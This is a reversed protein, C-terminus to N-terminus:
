TNNKFMLNVYYNAQAGKKRTLKKTKNFERGIHTYEGSGTYKANTRHVWDKFDDYVNTTLIKDKVNNTSIIRENLYRNFVDNETEYEQTINKLQQPVDKLGENVYNKYYDLLIQLFAYKWDDIKDSLTDNKPFEFRTSDLTPDGLEKSFSSVFPIVRIRRKMAPDNGNFKPLSNCVMFLKFDPVFERSEKHLPRYNLSDQGCLSKFLQENLKSGEVVESIYVFRKGVLKNLAPTAADADPSRGCIFTSEMKGAYGGLTKALLGILIGKGNAGEGFGFHFLQDKTFGALCSAFFKLAYHRCEPDPFVKQLFDDIEAKTKTDKMLNEEYVYGVSTSILDTPQTSRFVHNSLDYVGNEFGILNKSKDMKDLFDKDDIKMATSCEELIASKFATTDKKELLAQITKLKKDKNEVNSECFRQKARVFHAWFEDERIMSKIQSLDLNWRNGDFHYCNEKIGRAFVFKTKYLHRFVNAVRAEKGSLAGLILKNLVADKFIFLNDREFENSDIVVESGNNYYNNNITVDFRINIYKTLSNFESPIPSFHTELQSPLRFTCTLCRVFLGGERFAAELTNENGCGPCVRVYQGIQFNQGVETSTSMDDRLVIQDNGIYHKNICKKAEEKANELLEQDIKKDEPVHDKLDQLINEDLPHDYKDSQKEKCDDDYCRRSIIGTTISIVLFQHNSKHEGKLFKCRKVRTSVVFNKHQADYKLDILDESDMDYKEYILEVLSEPIDSIRTKKNTTNDNQDNGAQHKNACLKRKKSSSSTSCTSSFMKILPTHPLNNHAIVSVMQLHELQREFVGFTNNDVLTYTSEYTNKGFVNEHDRIKIALKDADEMSGKHCWLMRLGTKYVSGDLIKKWNIDPYKVKLVNRCEEILLDATESSVIIDPAHLHLKYPLRTAVLISSSNGFFTSLCNKFCEVIDPILVSVQNPDDVFMDVDCDIDAFWIFKAPHVKETISNPGGQKKGTTCDFLAKHLHKTETEPVHLTVPCKGNGFWTHTHSRPDQKTRKFGKLLTNLSSM